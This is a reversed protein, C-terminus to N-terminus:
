GILEKTLDREECNQNRNSDKQNKIKLTFIDVKSEENGNLQGSFIEM